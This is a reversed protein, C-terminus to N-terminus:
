LHEPRLGTGVKDTDAAIARPTMKRRPSVQRPVEDIGKIAECGQFFGWAIPEWASSPPPLTAEEKSADDQLAQM